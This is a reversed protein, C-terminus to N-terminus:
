SHVESKASLPAFYPVEGRLTWIPGPPNCALKTMSTLCIPFRLPNYEKLYSLLRRELGESTAVYVVLGVSRSDTWHNWIRWYRDKSKLTNEIELACPKESGPRYILGDGIAADASPARGHQTRLVKEPTWPAGPWLEALRIRVRNVIMDHSLTLPNIRPRYAIEFLSATKAEVEGRPTLILVQDRCGPYARVRKLYGAGELESVRRYAESRHVGRFFGAQVVEVTAVQQEYLFGLIRLDREQLKMRRRVLQKQGWERYSTSPTPDSVALTKRDSALLPVSEPKNVELPRVVPRSSEAATDPAVEVVTTVPNANQTCKEMCREM